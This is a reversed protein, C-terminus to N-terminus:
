DLTSLLTIKLNDINIHYSDVTYVVSSIIVTIIPVIAQSQTDVQSEQESSENLIRKSPRKTELQCDETDEAPLTKTDVSEDPISPQAHSQMIESQLCTLNSQELPLSSAPPMNNIYPQMISLYPDM